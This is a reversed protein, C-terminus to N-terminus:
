AGQGPAVDAHRPPWVVSFREFVIEDAPDFASGAAARTREWYRRHERQWAERTREDEGEDRAFAEDVSDFDGLRLETTRLIARPAGSGDCAIWHGGIRPLQEGEEAYEISLAATARKPGHLVLDLLADALPASDGFGEVVYEAGAVLAEPHASAYEAWMREAAALDPPAVPPLPESM